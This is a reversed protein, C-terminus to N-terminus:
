RPKVIYHLYQFGIVTFRDLVLHHMAANNKGTFSLIVIFNPSPQEQFTFTLSTHLLGMKM